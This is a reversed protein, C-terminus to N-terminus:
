PVDKQYRLGAAIYTTTTCDILCHNARATKSTLAQVLPWTRRWFSCEQNFYSNPLIDPLPFRVLGLETHFSHAQTWKPIRPYQFVSSLGFIIIYNRRCPRGLPVRDKLNDRLRGVHTWVALAAASLRWLMLYSILRTKTYASPICQFITELVADITAISYPQLPLSYWLVFDLKSDANASCRKGTADDAHRITSGLLYCPRQAQVGALNQVSRIAADVAPVAAGGCIDDDESIFHWMLLNNDHGGGGGDNNVSNFM